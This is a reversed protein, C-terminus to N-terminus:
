QRGDDASESGRADPFEARLRRVYAEAAARDGLKQEIQSALLLASPDAPAAALRRQSFARAAMTRGAKFELETMASLAVQNEPDVALTQRLLQEARATQGAQFACAGANGGAVAPTQYGPSALAQEFWALSEAARGHRCLWTGYNNLMGGDNPALDAARRYHQGAAAANGVHDEVIALVTYAGASRSDLKLAQKAEREAAAFDGKALSQQAMQVRALGGSAGAKGHNTINVEHATSEFDGRSTDPRVLTLRSCGAAFILALVVLAIVPQKQPFRRQGESASSPEPPQM